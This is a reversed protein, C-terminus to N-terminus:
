RREAAFKRQPFCFYDFPSFKTLCLDGLDISPPIPEEKPGEYHVVIEDSFANKQCFEIPPRGVDVRYHAFIEKSERIIFRFEHALFITVARKVSSHEINSFELFIRQICPHMHMFQRELEVVLMAIADALSSTRHLISGGMSPLAGVCTFFDQIVGKGIINGSGIRFKKTHM